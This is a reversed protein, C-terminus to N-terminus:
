SILSLAVAFILGYWVAYYLPHIKAMPFGLKRLMVLSAGWVFVSIIAPVIIESLADAGTPLARGKGKDEAAPRSEASCEGSSVM